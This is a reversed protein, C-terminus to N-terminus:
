GSVSAPRLARIRAMLDIMQRLERACAPYEALFSELDIEGERERRKLYVILAAAAEQLAAGPLSPEPQEGGLRDRLAGLGRQLLGHVAAETRGMQKAAEAIPLLKFHVLSIAEKQDPPLEFIHAMLQQWREGTATAESPSPQGSSARAIVSSELPVTADDDRKKRRAARAAQRICNRLISRLWAEWEAETTGEFSAFGTFAQMSTEQAIDSSRALGITTERLRRSAWQDIRQRAAEFLEELAGPDGSRARLLLADFTTRPDASGSMVRRGEYCM